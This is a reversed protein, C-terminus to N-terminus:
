LSQCLQLAQRDVISILNEDCILLTLVPRVATFDPNLKLSVLTRFRTWGPHPILTLLGAQKRTVRNDFEGTGPSWRRCGSSGNGDKQGPLRPLAQGSITDSGAPLALGPELGRFTTTSGSVM